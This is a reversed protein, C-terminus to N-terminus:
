NSDVFSLSFQLLLKQIEILMALILLVRSKLSKKEKEKENAIIIPTKYGYMISHWIKEDLFQVYVRM